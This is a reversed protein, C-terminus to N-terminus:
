IALTKIRLWNAVEYPLRDCLKRYVSDNYSNLWSIEEATLLDKRIASTEIHCCTLTEFGLWKGFENEGKSVCLIVNEHRIGHLGERYIGPEDSTIMGELMPQPNHNHRIDQPGEHVGLYYGIGHGTGHGFDRLGKWLPMRAMCDIQAGSTGEPFVSTALGIMGKLVLTYDEKELETLEGLPVTRTIDTTGFIYQGGSDILYLGKPLITASGERPTSYHPLAANPGYASINEFSDGRYGPIESRLSTLYESAEWETIEEGSLVAKELWFLFKEMQIGDEYFAERMGEKERENKVGKWEIIPSTGTKITDFINHILSNAEHNLSSPDAFVSEEYTKDLDWIEDYMYIEIGDARLEAFSDETESGPEVDPGKQVFWLVSDMSVLLYSIVYPNYEIDQGRVNLLWAIEDLSSILMNDCEERMLFKRLRSIRQLRSEGTDEKGLTTVPTEPIGPRSTWVADLADPASVLVRDEGLAARLSDTFSASVCLGDFAITQLEPHERLYGITYSSIPKAAKHLEVGSGELQKEAQIFYRSDTWLGAHDQTIILDGSEGTFGSAWEVQKWRGAPYESSHPDTSTIILADWGKATMLTRISDITKM